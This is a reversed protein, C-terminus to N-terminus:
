VREILSLYAAAVVILSLLFHEDCIRAHLSKKINALYVIIQIFVMVKTFFTKIVALLVALLHEM